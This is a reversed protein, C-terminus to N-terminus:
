RLVVLQVAAAARITADIAIDDLAKEPLKSKRIKRSLKLIWGKGYLKKRQKGRMKLLKKIDAEQYEEEVQDDEEDRTKLKMGRKENGGTSQLKKTEGEENGKEPYNRM